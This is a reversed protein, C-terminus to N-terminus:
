WGSGVVKRVANFTQQIEKSCMDTFIDTVTHSVIVNQQLRALMLVSFVCFLIYFIYVPAGKIKITLLTRISGLKSRSRQAELLAPRVSIKQKKKSM